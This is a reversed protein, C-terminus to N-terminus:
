NKTIRESNKNVPNLARAICWQFCEQDNNKKNIIANKAAMKTPLPIYSNGRLPKYVVTNIDLKEVAKFRWNSGRM